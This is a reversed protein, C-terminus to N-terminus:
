NGGPDAVVLIRVERGPEELRGIRRKVADM